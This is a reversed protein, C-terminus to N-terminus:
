LIEIKQRAKIEKSCRRSEM